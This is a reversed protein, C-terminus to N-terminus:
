SDDDCVHRSLSHNLIALQSLVLLVRSFCTRHEDVQTGFSSSSLSVSQLEIMEDENEKM